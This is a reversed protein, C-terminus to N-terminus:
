VRERCSARGIEENVREFRGRGATQQDAVLVMGAPEGARAAAALDANTSGTASVCRVQWRRPDNLLETIRVPDTPQCSIM